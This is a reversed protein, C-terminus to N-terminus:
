KIRVTSRRIKPVPFDNEIALSIKPEVIISVNEFNYPNLQLPTKL